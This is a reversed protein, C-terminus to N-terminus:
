TIYAFYLWFIIRPLRIGGDNNWFSSYGDKTCLTAGGKKPFGISDHLWSSPNVINQTRLYVIAAIVDNVSVYMSEFLPLYVSEWPIYLIYFARQHKWGMNWKSAIHEMIKSFHHSWKTLVFLNYGKLLMSIYKFARQQPCHFPYYKKSLSFCLFLRSNSNKM